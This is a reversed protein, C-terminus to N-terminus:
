LSLVGTTVKQNQKNQKSKKTQSVFGLQVLLLFLSWLPVMDMASLTCQFYLGLCGNTILSVKKKKELNTQKETELQSDINFSLMAIKWEITKEKLWYM